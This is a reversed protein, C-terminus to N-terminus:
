HPLKEASSTGTDKPEVAFTGLAAALGSIPRLASSAASSVLTAASSGAPAHASRHASANHTCGRPPYVSYLELNRLIITNYEHLTWFFWAPHLGGRSKPPLPRLGVGGFCAHFGLLQGAGGSVSKFRVKISAICRWSSIQPAGRKVCCSLSKAAAMWFSNPSGPGARSSVSRGAPRYGGTHARTGRPSGGYAPAGRRHCQIGDTLRPADGPMMPRHRGAGPRFQPACTHALRCLDHGAEPPFKAQLRLQQAFGAILKFLCAAM